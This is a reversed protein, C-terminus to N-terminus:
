PCKGTIKKITSCCLTKCCSCKCPCDHNCCVCKRGNSNEKTIKIYKGDEQIWEVLEETQKGEPKPPSMM